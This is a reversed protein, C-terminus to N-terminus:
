DVLPRRDGQRVLDLSEKARAFDAQRVVVQNDKRADPWGSPGGAGAVFAKIGQDALHNVILAAEVETRVTALVQPSDPDAAM